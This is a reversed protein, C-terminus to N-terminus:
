LNLKYIYYDVLPYKVEQLLSACTAVGPAFPVTTILFGANNIKFFNDCPEIRINMQDPGPNSLVPKLNQQADRDFTFNVHAYRNYISKENPQNLKNWLDLQPYLYVGNLSPEGNMTAFNEIYIDESVWRSSSNKGITQIATSIPTQTLISTGKYLPNIQWISIFSFLMLLLTALVMKKRLILFIIVPFPVALLLASKIGIFGPFEHAVHINLIILGIFILTSYITTLWLSLKMKSKLYSKIFSVLLIFNLIGLGILLRPLPVKDLLTIKGILNLGPIFMWAIFLAGVLLPILISYDIGQRRRYQTYLLYIAPIILFTFILMFNSSESQNIAGISPRSYSLARLRNQFVSSLQSSLLHVENYGGSKVVRQGPYDTNNITVAVSSHQLLFLGVVAGAILLSGLLFILNMKLIKKSIRNRTNLLYGIAFGLSVIACPIQFPPYIVLAFCVGVYSLLFSWLLSHLKKKSQILKIFLILGFLCYYISALTGIQYWWQIFPSFLLTLSLIIALIHKKPLLLLVFFYTSLVLFYAMIWWHLAFATDFPLLLYGISQPKFLISWDKYPVDYLVSVDEGKGMNNNIMNFNDNKQAITKQTNVIWEDSRISQPVNLLLDKDKTNGYFVDQYIGISSGSIQLASIIILLISIIAPFFWISHLFNHLKTIYKNKKHKDDVIM